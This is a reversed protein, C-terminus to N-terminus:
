GGSCVQLIEVPQKNIMETLGALLFKAIELNPVELAADGIVMPSGALQMTAPDIPIHMAYLKYRKRGNGLDDRVWSTTVIGQPSATNGNLNM